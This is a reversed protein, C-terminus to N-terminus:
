LQKASSCRLGKNESELRRLEWDRLLFLESLDFRFEGIGSGRYEGNQSGAM